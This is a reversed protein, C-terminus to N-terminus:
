RDAVGVAALDDGGEDGEGEEAPARVLEDAPEGVAAATEVLGLDAEEREGQGDDDADEGGDDVALGADVGGGVVPEGVDPGEGGVVEAEDAGVDDGDGVQEVAVRGARAGQEDDDAGEAADDRKADSEADGREDLAVAVVAGEVSEAAESATEAEDGHGQVEKALLDTDLEPLVGGLRTELTATWLKKVINWMIICSLSVFGPPTPKVVHAERGPM